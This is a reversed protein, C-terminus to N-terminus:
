REQDNYKKNLIPNNITIHDQMDILKILSKIFSLAM